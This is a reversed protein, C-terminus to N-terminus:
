MYIHTNVTLSTTINEKHTHTHTHTHAHTHTHTHTHTYILIVATQNSVTENVMGTEETAEEAAETDQKESDYKMEKIAEFRFSIIFIIFLETANKQTFETIEKCAIQNWYVLQYRHLM